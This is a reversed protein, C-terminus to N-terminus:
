KDGLIKMDLIFTNLEKKTATVYNGEYHRQYTRLPLNINGEYHNAFLALREGMGQSVTFTFYYTEGSNIPIIGLDFLLTGEQIVTNEIKQTAIIEHESDEIILEISSNTLDSGYTGVWVEVQSISEGYLVATQTFDGYEDFSVSIRESTDNRYQWLNNYQAIISPLCLLAPIIFSLTCILFRSRILGTVRKPSTTFSLTCFRPHSYIYYILMIAFLIAFSMDQGINPYIDAMSLNTGDKYFLKFSLIGNKLLTEDAIDAYTYVVFMNFVLGFIMDIWLFVSTQPHIMFGICWFFVAFLLWQPHWRMLGFLVFCIGCSYHISYSFFENKNKCNTFYAFALLLITLVPACQISVFDSIPIGGNQVYDLANFGLVSQSFANRDFIFYIGGLMLTPLLVLISDRIIMWIRKEKLLLLVLFILLSYYKFTIAISFLAIFYYRSKRFNTLDFFFYIGLVMFFVTFIDYQGFIFQSFFGIPSSLFLIVTLKSNELSFELRNTCIKYIVYSSFFYVISPLLKNWLIFAGDWVAWETPLLGLIKLPLNWIAYLIFTSPLYNANYKGNLEYSGSYFDLIHGNLYSSSNQATTAIDTHNFILFCFLTIMGFLIYDLITLNQIINRINLKRNM